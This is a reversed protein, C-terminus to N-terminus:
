KEAQASYAPRNKEQAKLFTRLAPFWHETCRKQLFGRFDPDGLTETLLEGFKAPRDSKESERKIVRLETMFSKFDMAALIEETDRAIVTRMLSRVAEDTKATVRVGPIAWRCWYIPGQTALQFQKLMPVVQKHGDSTEDVMQDTFLVDLEAVEGRMKRFLGPDLVGLSVLMFESITNVMADKYHEGTESVRLSNFRACFRKTIRESLEWDLKQVLYAERFFDRLILTNDEGRISFGLSLLGAMARQYPQVWEAIRIANKLEITDNVLGGNAGGDTKMDRALQMQSEFSEKTAEYNLIAAAIRGRSAGGSTHEGPIFMMGNSDKELGDVIAIGAFDLFKGEMGDLVRGPSYLLYDQNGRELLLETLAEAVQTDKLTHPALTAVGELIRKGIAPTDLGVDERLTHLTAQVKQICSLLLEHKQELSLALSQTQQQGLSQVM